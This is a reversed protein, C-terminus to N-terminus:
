TIERNVLDGLPTRIPFRAEPMNSERFSLLVLAYSSGPSNTDGTRL